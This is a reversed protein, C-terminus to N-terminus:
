RGEERGTQPPTETLGKLPLLPLVSQKEPDLLFKNSKAVIQEMTELYLRKRTVDKAKRYEALVSLFRSAEGQARKIKQERFAEAQRM